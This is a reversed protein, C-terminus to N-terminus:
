GKAMGLRFTTRTPNLSTLWITRRGLMFATGDRDKAGGETGRADVIKAASVARIKPLGIRAPM